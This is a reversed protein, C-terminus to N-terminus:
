LSETLSGYRFLRVPGLLGSVFNEGERDMNDGNWYRNWGLAEGEDVLLQRREVAASNAAIVAIENEGDLVLDTIDLRYPTWVRAGALTGNIWVEASQGVQGLDLVYRGPKKRLSFSNKYLGRGSFWALGHLRWDWLPTLFPKVIVTVPALLGQTKDGATVRISLFRSHGKPEIRTWESELDIPAGDLTFTCSGAAQPRKIQATGAPLTIGYYLNLPFEPTKGFLPKDGWPLVPPRGREWSYLWAGHPAGQGMSSSRVPDWFLATAECAADLTTWGPTEQNTVIWSEDSKLTVLEKEVALQGQFLLGILKQPPIEDVSTFDIGHSPTSNHVHVAILNAGKEFYEAVELTVPEGLSTEHAVKKENIYLTFEGIAGICLSASQPLANLALTKRFYLDPERLSCHWSPRRTIWSAEWLSLHRACFGKEWPTNCIRIPKSTKNLDSSFVAVPINHEQGEARPDPLQSEGRNLPDKKLPLFAWRGAVALEEKEEMATGLSENVAPSAMQDEKLAGAADMVILCAEDESLELRVETWAEDGTKDTVGLLSSALGTEFSLRTLPGTGALRLRLSRAKPSSNSVFYMTKNDVVRCSAYFDARSGEIVTVRPTLHKKLCAPLEEPDIVPFGELGHPLDDADGCRYFLLTGGAEAFASLRTILSPTLGPGAPCVLAKFSQQGAKLSGADIRANLLSDGDIMDVDIQNELLAYLATHFNRALHSAYSSLQGGVTNEQMAEIPYFLGVDVLPMGAANFRCVRGMYDAFLKFHRWYPNQYFFSTPWDAQSGQHDCEYYFGHLIFMNIGMAGMTNIGRKFQQLSCGWGAGGMAESMCRSRNHARAVSVAYKPEVCTIKRPFRYRYDHNDAGPIQLHKMTSFFNGQRRPHDWLGEETHGTLKLGHSECWDGIQKFFAEEYLEALISYYDGRVKKAEEGEGEMLLPLLPLLSYGRRKEFEEPLHDTWPLPHAAMYIEDFFIGPILSGFDEGYHRAYEEHTLSIFLRITEKNLYDVYGPYIKRFFAMVRCPFKFSNDQSKWDLSLPSIHLADTSGTLTFAAVPEDELLGTLDKLSHSGTLELTKVTLGKAMHCEGLSLVRSPKQYGYEFTSGATGSPWAYEDYLWPSFGQKRGEDICADVADWWEKELYPTKLYARSHMFGGYVGKDVMERIQERLTEPELTGNWFWFALPSYEREPERFTDFFQTM